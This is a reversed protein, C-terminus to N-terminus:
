KAKKEAKTKELDAELDAKAGEKEQVSKSDAARKAASDHMFQEYEEQADKEDTKLTAIEKDLDTELLNIMEIVASSEQGKKQYAKVAEPPPPPAVSAWTADLAGVQVFATVGGM